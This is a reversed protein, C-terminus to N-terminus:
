MRREKADAPLGYHKAGTEVVFDAIRLAAAKQRKKTLAHASGKITDKKWDGTQNENFLVQGEALKDGGNWSL